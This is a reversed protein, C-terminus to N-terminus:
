SVRRFAIPAKIKFIRWQSPSGVIHVHYLGPEAFFNSPMQLTGQSNAPIGTWNVDAWLTTVAKWTIYPQNGPLAIDGVYGTQIKIARELELRLKKPRSFTSPFKGTVLVAVPQGHSLTEGESPKQIAISALAPFVPKAIGPNWDHLPDQPRFSITASGVFTYRQRNRDDMTCSAKVQSAPTRPVNAFAYSFHFESNSKAHGPMTQGNRTIVINPLHHSMNCCPMKGLYKPNTPKPVEWTVYVTMPQPWSPAFEFLFQGPAQKKASQWKGDALLKVSTVEYSLAKGASPALVAALIVLASRLARALHKRTM